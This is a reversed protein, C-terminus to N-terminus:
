WLSDPHIYGCTGLRRLFFHRRVINAARTKSFQKYLLLMASVAVHCGMAVFCGDPGQKTDEVAEEGLMVHHAANTMSARKEGLVKTGWNHFKKKMLEQLFIDEVLRHHRWIGGGPISRFFCRPYSSAFRGSRWSPVEWLRCRLTAFAPSIRRVAQPNSLWSPSDHFDIFIGVVEALAFNDSSVSVDIIKTTESFKLEKV